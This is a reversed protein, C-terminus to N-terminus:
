GGCLLILNFTLDNDALFYSFLNFPTIMKLKQLSGIFDKSLGYDTVM